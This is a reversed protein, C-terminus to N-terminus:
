RRKGNAAEELMARIVESISPEIGTLRKAEMQRKVIKAHLAKSVRSAIQVENNETPLGM